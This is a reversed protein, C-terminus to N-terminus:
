MQVFQQAQQYAERAGAGPQDAMFVNETGLVKLCDMDKLQDYAAPSVGDMLTAGTM